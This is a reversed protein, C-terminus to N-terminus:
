WEENEKPSDDLLPHHQNKETIEKLMEALNYKQRAEVILKGDEISVLIHSVHKLNLQKTLKM